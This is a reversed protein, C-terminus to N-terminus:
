ILSHSCLSHVMHPGLWAYIPNRHVEEAFKDNIRVVYIYVLGVGSLM